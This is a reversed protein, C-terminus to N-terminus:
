GIMAALYRATKRAGGLDVGSPGDGALRRRPAALAADIAAALRGPEAPPEALSLLGREALLRARLTQESEAGEAFPLVLARAGAALIDMVTNYGAQSISLRCRALLTTFDARFREVTVDRPAAERLAALEAAPLNPGAILRWPARALRTAPRAALAARLLPGGVAGGGASVLVEGHERNDEAVVMPVPPAPEAVYGTYVIREAIAPAGPFTAELAVLRPDGHVLVRDIRGQVIAVTEAVRDPRNKAVLIDRLSVATPLGRAKAADLLPVLEFAFPRRGFPFMEILVLDPRAAEFTALLLRRRHDRWADDIPRGEEDLLRSFHVDASVAPPLQVLRAAGIDVESTATGGSVFRVDLGEASMARAILAARRLHGIGLLHQVYFLVVPKV